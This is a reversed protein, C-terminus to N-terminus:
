TLLLDVELIKMNEMGLLTGVINPGVWFQIYKSPLDPSFPMSVPYSLAVCSTGNLGKASQNQILSLELNTTSISVGHRDIYHM